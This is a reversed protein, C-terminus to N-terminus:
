HFRVLAIYSSVVTNRKKVLRTHGSTGYTLAKSLRLHCGGGWQGESVHKKQRLEKLSKQLVATDEASPQSSPQAARFGRIQGDAGIVIVDTVGDMRYDGQLIASVSAKMRARFVIDGNSWDRVEISGDSYGVIVEPVGDSDM